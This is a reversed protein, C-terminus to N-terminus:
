KTNLDRRNSNQLSRQETFFRSFYQAQKVASFYFVPAPATQDVTGVGTKSTNVQILPQKAGSLIFFGRKDQYVFTREKTARALLSSSRRWLYQSRLTVIVFLLICFIKCSVVRYQPTKCQEEDRGQCCFGCQSYYLRELTHTITGMTPKPILNSTPNIRLLIFGVKQKQRCRCFFLM